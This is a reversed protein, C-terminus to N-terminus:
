LGSISVLLVTELEVRVGGLRGESLALFQLLQMGFQVSDSLSDPRVFVVKLLKHLYQFYSMLLPLLFPLVETVYTSEKDNVILSIPLLCTCSRSSSLIAIM